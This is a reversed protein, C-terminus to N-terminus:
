VSCVQMEEFRQPPPPTYRWVEESRSDLLCLELHDLDSSGHIKLEDLSEFSRYCLLCPFSHRSGGANVQNQFFMIEEPSNSRSHYIDDQLSDDASPFGFSNVSAEMASALFGKGKDSSSQSSFVDRPQLPLKTSSTIRDPPNVEGARGKEAGVLAPIVAPPKISAYPQFTDEDVQSQHVIGYPRDLAVQVPSEPRFDGKSESTIHDWMSSEPLPDEEHWIANRFM